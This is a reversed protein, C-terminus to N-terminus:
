ILDGNWLQTLFEDWPLIMIEITDNVKLLRTSSDQSVVIAKTHPHEECFAIDGKLSTVHRKGLFNAVAVDFFYFKRMATVVDRKIKKHYPYM